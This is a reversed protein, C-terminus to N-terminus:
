ETIRVNGYYPFYFYYRWNDRREPAIQKGILDFIQEEEPTQICEGDPGILWGGEFRYDDPLLGGKRKQTVWMRNFDGPGTRLALIYGWQEATTLFLDLFVESGDEDIKVLFNKHLDGAKHGRRFNDKNRVLNNLLLELASVMKPPDGFLSLQTELDPCFKPIAVIEIDGVIHKRRRISGAIEIRECGPSLADRIKEALPLARTLPIKTKM